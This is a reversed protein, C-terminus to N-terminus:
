FNEELTQSETKNREDDKRRDTKLELSFRKAKQYGALYASTPPSLFNQSSRPNTLFSYPVPSSYAPRTPLSQKGRYTFSSVPPYNHRHYMDLYTYNGQLSSSGSQGPLSTTRKYEIGNYQNFHSHYRTNFSYPRSYRPVPKMVSPIEDSCTGSKIPIKEKEECQEVVKAKGDSNDTTMSWETDLNNTAERRETDLNDTPERRETRNETPEDRVTLHNESREQRETLHDTLGQSDTLDDTPKQQEIGM